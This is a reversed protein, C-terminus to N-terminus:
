SIWRQKLTPKWQTRPTAGYPHVSPRQGLVPSAMILLTKVVENFHAAMADYSQLLPYMEPQHCLAVAAANLRKDARIVPIVMPLEEWGGWRRRLLRRVSPSTVISGRETVRKILRWRLEPLLWSSDSIRAVLGFRVRRPRGYRKRKRDRRVNYVRNLTMVSTRLADAYALMRIRFGEFQIHPTPCYVGVIEERRPRTLKLVALRRAVLPPFVLPHKRAQALRQELTILGTWADNIGQGLARIEDFRKLLLLEVRGLRKIDM